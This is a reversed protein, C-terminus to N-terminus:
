KVEEYDIYEGESFSRNPKSFKNPRHIIIESEPQVIRHARRMVKVIGIVFRLLLYALLLLLIFSFKVM